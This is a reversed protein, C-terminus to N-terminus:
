GPLWVTIGDSGQEVSKEDQAPGTDEREREVGRLVQMDLAAESCGFKMTSKAAECDQSPSSEARAPCGQSAREDGLPVM